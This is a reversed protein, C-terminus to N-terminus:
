RPPGAELLALNQQALDSTATDPALNIAREWDARAGNSDNRRQRLIGRELLAEANDPDLKLARDIDDRALELRGMHRWASGRLVMADVRKPDIDLVRSLDDLADQYRNLNGAAVARDILLDPDDPSLSLALTAAAFARDIKGAMLWAQGAQGYVAARAVATGASQAALSELMEAGTEPEGLAIRALAFCHAAGEGGGGSQWNEAYASAGAPDDNLM